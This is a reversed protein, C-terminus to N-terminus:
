IIKFGSEELRTKIIQLAIGLTVLQEETYKLADLEVGDRGTAEGTAFWEHIEAFTRSHQYFSNSRSHLGDKVYIYGTITNGQVRCDARLSDLMEGTRIYYMPEYSGYWESEIYEKAITIGAQLALNMGKKIDKIIKAYISDINAM